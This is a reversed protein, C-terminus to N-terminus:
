DIESPIPGVGNAPHLYSLITRARAKGVGEVKALDDASAAMLRDYSTFRRLISDRVGDPLRPVRAIARAGRPQAHEDLLGFDFVEAVTESDYLDEEDLHDLKAFM